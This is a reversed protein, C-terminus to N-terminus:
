NDSRGAVECADDMVAAHEEQKQAGAPAATPKSARILVLLPFAALSVFTM